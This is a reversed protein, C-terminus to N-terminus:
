NTNIYMQIRYYNLPWNNNITRPPRHVTPMPAKTLSMLLHVNPVCHIKLMHSSRKRGRLKRNPGIWICTRIYASSTRSITTCCCGAGESVSCIACIYIQINLRVCYEKRRKKERMISWYLLCVCDFYSKVYSLILWLSGSQPASTHTHSPLTYRCMSLNRVSMAHRWGGEDFKYLTYTYILVYTLHSWCINEKKAFCGLPCVRPRNLMSPPLASVRLAIIWHCTREHTQTEASIM